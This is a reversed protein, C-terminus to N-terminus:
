IGLDAPNRFVTLVITVVALFLVAWGIWYLVAGRGGGGTQGGAM